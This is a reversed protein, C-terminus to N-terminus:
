CDGKAGLTLAGTTPDYTVRASRHTGTCTPTAADTCDVSGACIGFTNSAGTFTSIVIGSGSPVVKQYVDTDFTGGAGGTPLAKLSNVALALQANYQGFAGDIASNKSDTIITGFQVTAVAGLIGLIVIILVLEILTFGKENKLIKM